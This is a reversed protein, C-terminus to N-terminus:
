CVRGDDKKIKEFESFRDIVGSVEIDLANELVRVVKGPFGYVLVKEGVEFDSANLEM